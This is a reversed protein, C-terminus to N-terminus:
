PSPFSTKPMQLERLRCSNRLSDIADNSNGPKIGGICHKIWGRNRKNLEIQKGSTIMAKTLDSIENLGNERWRRWAYYIRYTFM